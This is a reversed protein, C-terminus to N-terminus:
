KRTFNEALKEKSMGLYEYIDCPESPAAFEEDIAVTKYTCRRFDFGATDLADRLIMGAGGNKIGEEVFVIRSAARLREKILEAIRDYPKIQELLVIGSSKGESEIIEKAGIVNEVIRGYTIFVDAETEIGDTCKIGIDGYEGDSYFVEKVKQSEAANPYRIAIPYSANESQKM